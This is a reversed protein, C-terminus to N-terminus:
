INGDKDKLLQLIKNVNEAILIIKATKLIIGIYGNSPPCINPPNKSLNLGLNDYLNLIYPGRSKNPTIIKPITLPKEIILVIIEGNM